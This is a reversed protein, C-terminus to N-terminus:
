SGFIFSGVGPPQALSKLINKTVNCKAVFTRAAYNSKEFPNKYIASM